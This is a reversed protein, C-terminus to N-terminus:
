ALPNKWEDIGGCLYCVVINNSRLCLDHSGCDSWRDVAKNSRYPLRRGPAVPFNPGHEAVQRRLILLEERWEEPYRIASRIYSEGVEDFGFLDRNLKGFPDLLANAPFPVFASIPNTYFVILAVGQAMRALELLRYFQFENVRSWFDQSVTRSLLVPRLIDRMMSAPIQKEETFVVPRTGQYDILDIDMAYAWPPLQEFHWQNYATPFYRVRSPPKKHSESLSWISRVDGM